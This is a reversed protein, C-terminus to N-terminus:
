FVPEKQRIVLNQIYCSSDVFLLVVSDNFKNSKLKQLFQKNTSTDLLWPQHLLGSGFLVM